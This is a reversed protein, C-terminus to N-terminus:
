KKVEVDRAHFKEVSDLAGPRGNMCANIYCNGHAQKYQGSIVKCNDHVPNCCFWCLTSRSPNPEVPEPPLPFLPLKLAKRIAEIDILDPRYKIFHAAKELNWLAHALHRVVDGGETTDGNIFKLVHNVAHSLLNSLPIGKQWNGRGYKTDGEHQTEAVLDIAADSIQSYDRPIPVRNAGGPTVPPPTYLPEVAASPEPGETCRGPHGESFWCGNGCKRIAM